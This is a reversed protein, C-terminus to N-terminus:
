RKGQMEYSVCDSDPPAGTADCIKTAETLEERRLTERVLYYSDMGDVPHTLDIAVATIPFAAVGVLVPVCGSASVALAAVGLRLMFRGLRAAKESQGNYIAV